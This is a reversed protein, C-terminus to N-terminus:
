TPDGPLHHTKNEVAGTDRWPQADDVEEPDPAALARALWGGVPSAAVLLTTLLWGCWFVAVAIM